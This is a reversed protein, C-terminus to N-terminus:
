GLGANVVNHNGAAALMRLKPPCRRLTPQPNKRHRRVGDLIVSVTAAAYISRPTAPSHLNEAEEEIPYGSAIGAEFRPSVDFCPYFFTGLYMKIAQRPM